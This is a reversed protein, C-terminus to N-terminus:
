PTALAKQLAAFSNQLPSNEAIPQRLVKVLEPFIRLARDLNPNSGATYAGIEIIERYQRQTALVQRAQSIM